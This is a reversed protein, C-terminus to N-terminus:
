LRESEHQYEHQDEGSGGDGLSCAIDGVFNEHQGSEDDPVKEIGGNGHSGFAHDSVCVDDSFDIKGSEKNRKGGRCRCQSIKQYGKQQKQGKAQKASLWNM